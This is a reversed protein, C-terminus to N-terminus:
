RKRKKSKHGGTQHGGGFFGKPGTNKKIKKLNNLVKQFANKSPETGTTSHVNEQKQKVKKTQMTKNDFSFLAM